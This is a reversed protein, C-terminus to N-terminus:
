GGAITVVILLEDGDNVVYDLQSINRGNLYLDFHKHINANGDFLYKETGPYRKTFEILCSRVSQNKIEVIRLGDTFDRIFYPIKIKM